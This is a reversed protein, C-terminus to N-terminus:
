VNGKTDQIDQTIGSSGLLNENVDLNKGLKSIELVRKREMRLDDEAKGLKKKFEESERSQELLAKEMNELDKMLSQVKKQCDSKIKEMLAKTKILIDEDKERDQCNSCLTTEFKDEAEEELEEVKKKYKSLENELQQTRDSSNQSFDFEQDNSNNPSPSNMILNAIERERSLSTEELESITMKHQKIELHLQAIEDNLNSVDKKLGLAEEECSKKTKLENELANVKEEFNRTIQSIKTEYNSKLENVINDNEKIKEQLSTIESVYNELQQTLSQKEIELQNLKNEFGKAEANREDDDIKNIGDTGKGGLHLENKQSEKELAQELLLKEELITKITEQLNKYEKSNNIDQLEELKKGSDDIRRQMEEIVENKRELEQRLEISEKSESESIKEMKKELINKENLSQNLKAELASLDKKNQELARIKQAKRDIEKLHDAVKRKESEFNEKLRAERLEHQQNREHLEELQVQIESVQKEYKMKLTSTSELVEEKTKELDEEYQERLHCEVQNVKRDM